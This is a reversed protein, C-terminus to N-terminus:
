ENAENNIGIYKIMEWIQQLEHISIPESMEVIGKVKDPDPSFKHGLFTVVPKRWVSKKPNLKLGAKQIVDLVKRLKKDHEEM